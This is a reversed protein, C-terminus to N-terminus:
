MHGIVFYTKTHFKYRSVNRKFQFIGQVFDKRWVGKGKRTFNCHEQLSYRIDRCILIDIKIYKWFFIIDVNLPFVFKCHVKLGKVALARYLIELYNWFFLHIKIHFYQSIKLSDIANKLKAVPYWTSLFISPSFM